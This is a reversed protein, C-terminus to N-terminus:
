PSTNTIIFVSMMQSFLSVIFKMSYVNFHSSVNFVNFLYMDKKESGDMKLFAFKIRFVLRALM